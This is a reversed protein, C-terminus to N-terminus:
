RQSDRAELIALAMSPATMAHPPPPVRSPPREDPTPVRVVADVAVPEDGDQAVLEQEFTREGVDAVFLRRGYAIAARRIGRLTLVDLAAALRRLGERDIPESRGLAETSPLTGSRIGGREARELLEAFGLDDISAWSPAVDPTGAPRVSPELRALM